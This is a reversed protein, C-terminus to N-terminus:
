PRILIPTGDKVMAYVDEIEDDSITICGATWDWNSGVKANGEPGRGHIFIDSGASRGIAAAEAVDRQDPFSIGISLHYQSNPNRRDIFYAGEPTRGDGEFMKDGIPENGLGIDYEKIATNGSILWMKRDSKDVLIQTVQPGVYTKFKSPGACAVLLFM